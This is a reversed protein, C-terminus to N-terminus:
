VHRLDLDLITALIMPSELVLRRKMADVTMRDLKAARENGHAAENRIDAFYVRHAGGILSGIAESLGRIEKLHTRWARLQDQAFRAEDYHARGELVENIIKLASGFPINDERYQNLYWMTPPTNTGVKRFKRGKSSRYHRYLPVFLRERLEREVVIAILLAARPLEDVVGHYLVDAMVLDDQSLKNLRAFREASLLKEWRERSERRIRKHWDEVSQFASPQALHQITNGTIEKVLKNIENSESEEREVQRSEEAVKKAVDHLEALRIQTLGVIRKSKAFPAYQKVRIRAAQGFWYLSEGHLGWRQCFRALELSSQAQRYLHKCECSFKWARRWADYAEAWREQAEYLRGRHHLVDAMRNPQNSKAFLADAQEFGKAAEDLHCARKTRLGLELQIKARHFIADRIRLQDDSELAIRYEDDHKAKATELDGRRLASRGAFARANALRPLDETRGSFVILEVLEEYRAYCDDAGQLYGIEDYFAGLSGLLRAKAELDRPLRIRELAARFTEHAQEFHGLHRLTAGLHNAIYLEQQYLKSATARDRAQLLLEHSEKFRGLRYMCVGMFRLGLVEGIDCGVRVVRDVFQM